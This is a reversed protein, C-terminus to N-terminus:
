QAAITEGETIGSGNFSDVRIFYAIGDNLCHMTLAEKGYVLTSHYLKDPAIGWKVNYGDAGEAKDWSMAATCGDDASRCIKVNEARAPKPVSACRHGFVRLGIMAFNNYFPMEVSTVRIYRIRKGEEFVIFDNQMNTNAERKDCLIEWNEGDASGELLWRHRIKQEEKPLMSFHQYPIGLLGPLDHDCFNLQIARVADITELDMELWQGERRVSAVFNTRSNEDCVYKAEHGVIESSARVPKNLSLLMWGTFLKTPDAEGEPIYHPYDAFNQDCYMIGDKDFGVPFLGMKRAAFPACGITSAAHWYNGYEDAFTSGHGAGQYFGGRIVSFPSNPCYTYPGLPKDSVYCGDSYVQLETAPAAYQLYYKGDHKTMFPGEIWPADYDLGPADTEGIRLFGVKPDNDWGNREFGHHARDEEILVVREGIPMLTEADLEIGWIPDVNHCGWYLYVRGDDDKYLAPDWFGFGPDVYFEFKENLPDKSRTFWSKDRSSASHYLYDGIVCADGAAGPMVGIDEDCHPHWTALDESWWFGKMSGFVFYKGNFRVVAPDGFGQHSLRMRGSAFGFGPTAGAGAFEISGPTNLPNCIIKSM